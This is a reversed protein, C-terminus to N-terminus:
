LYLEDDMGKFVFKSWLYLLCGYSLILKVKDINM